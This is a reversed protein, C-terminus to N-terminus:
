DSEGVVRENLVEERRKSGTQNLGSVNGMELDFADREEPIAVEREKTRGARRRGEPSLVRTEM